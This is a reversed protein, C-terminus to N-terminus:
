CRRVERVVLAAWAVGMLRVPPLLSLDARGMEAPLLASGPPHANSGPKRADKKSGGSSHHVLPELKGLEKRKQLVGGRHAGDGDKHFKARGGEDGSGVVAGARENDSASAHGAGPGEPKRPGKEKLM